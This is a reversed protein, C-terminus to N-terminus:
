ELMEVNCNELDLLDSNTTMLYKDDAVSNELIQKILVENSFQTNENDIIILADTKHTKAAKKKVSYFIEIVSDEIGIPSKFTLTDDPGYIGFVDDDTKTRVQKKLYESAETNVTYKKTNFIMTHDFEGDTIILNPLDFQKRNVNSSMFKEFDLDINISKSIPMIGNLVLITFKM